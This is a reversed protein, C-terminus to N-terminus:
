HQLFKTKTASFTKQLDLLKNQSVFPPFQGYGPCVKVINEKSVNIIIYSNSILFTAQIFHEYVALIRRKDALKM